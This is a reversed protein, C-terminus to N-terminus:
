FRAPTTIGCFKYRKEYPHIHGEIVCGIPYASPNNSYVTYKKRTRMGYVVVDHKKREIVEFNDSFLKTVQLIEKALDKPVDNNQVFEEAVTIGTAPRIRAYIFWTM